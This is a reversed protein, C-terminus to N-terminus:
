RNEPPQQQKELAGVRCVQANGIARRLTRISHGLEATGVAGTTQRDGDRGSDIGRERTDDFALTQSM